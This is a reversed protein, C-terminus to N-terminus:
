LNWSLRTPKTIYRDYCTSTHKYLIPQSDLVIKTYKILFPCCRARHERLSAAQVPKLIPLVHYTGVRIIKM